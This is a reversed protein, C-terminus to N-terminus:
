QLYNQDTWLLIQLSPYSYQLSFLIWLVTETSLNISAGYLALLVSSVSQSLSVCLALRGLSLSLVSLFSACKIPSSGTGCMTFFTLVPFLIFYMTLHYLYPGSASIKSGRCCMGCKRKGPVSVSQVYPFWLFPSVSALSRHRLVVLRVLLQIVSYLISTVSDQLLYALWSLPCDSALSTWWSVSFSCHLFFSMSFIFCPSISFM